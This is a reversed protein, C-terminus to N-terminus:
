QIESAWLTTSWESFPLDAFPDRDVAGFTCRDMPRDRRSAQQDREGDAMSNYFLHVRQIM